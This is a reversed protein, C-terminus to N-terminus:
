IVLVYSHGVRVDEGQGGDHEDRDRRQQPKVQPDRAIPLGRYLAYSPVAGSVAVTKAMAVVAVAVAVDLPVSVAVTPRPSAGAGSM